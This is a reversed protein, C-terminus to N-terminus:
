QKLRFLRQVVYTNTMVLSSMRANAYKTVPHSPSLSGYEPECMVRTQSGVPIATAANSRHPQATQGPTKRPASRTLKETPEEKGRAAPMAAPLVSAGNRAAQHSLRTPKRGPNSRWRSIPDNTNAAPMPMDTDADPPQALRKTAPSSGPSATPEAQSDHHIPSVTPTNSAAGNSSVRERSLM